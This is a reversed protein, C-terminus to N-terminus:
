NKITEPATVSRDIQGSDNLYQYNYTWHKGEVKKELRKNDQTYKFTYVHPNKFWPKHSATSGSVPKIVPHDKVEAFIKNEFLFTFLCLVIIFITKKM